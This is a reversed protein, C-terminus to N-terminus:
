RGEVPDIIWRQTDDNQWNRTVVSYDHKSNKVYADVYRHNSKQQITYTSNGLLKLIWRQTDNDQWDRTVVSNDHSGEHADMYRKNSKQQITYTDKGVPTLIWRQTDNNQWARTVVSFDHKSGNEYADMYRDTSKQRITHVGQLDTTQRQEELPAPEAEEIPQQHGQEGDEKESLATSIYSRTIDPNFSFIVLVIGLVAIVARATRSSTGVELEKAKVKGLLGVLILLIGFVLLTVEYSM